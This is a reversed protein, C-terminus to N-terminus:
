RRRSRRHWLGVPVTVAAAVAFSILSASMWSTPTFGLWDDFNGWQRSWWGLYGPNIMQYAAFGALWPLLM